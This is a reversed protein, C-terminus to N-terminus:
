HKVLHTCYVLEYTDHTLTLTLTILYYLVSLRKNQVWERIAGRSRFQGKDRSEGKGRFDGRGGFESRVKFEGRSVGLEDTSM